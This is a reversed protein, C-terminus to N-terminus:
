DRRRLRERERRRLISLMVPSMSLYQALVKLPIFKSLVHPAMYQLKEQRKGWFSEYREQPTSLARRRYYDELSYLQHRLLGIEFKLLDTFRTQLLSYKSHSIEWGYSDTLAEVRFISDKDAVISHFSTFIAGGGDFFLTDDKGNKSFMVRCLGKSIFIWRDCKENQTVIASGKRCRWRTMSRELAKLAEPSIQYSQNLIIEQLTWVDEAINRKM